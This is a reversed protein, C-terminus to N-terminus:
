PLDRLEQIKIIIFFYIESFVKRKLKFFRLTSLDEKTGKRQGCINEVQHRIKCPRFNVSFFIVIDIMHDPQDSDTLNKSISDTIQRKVSVGTLFYIESNFLKIIM